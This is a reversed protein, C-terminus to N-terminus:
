CRDPLILFKPYSDNAQIYRMKNNNNESLDVLITLLLIRVPHIHMLYHVSLGAACAM